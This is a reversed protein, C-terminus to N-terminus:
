CASTSRSRTLLETPTTRGFSASARKFAWSPSVTTSVSVVSPPKRRVAVFGPKASFIATASFSLRRYRLASRSSALHLRRDPQLSLVAQGNVLHHERLVATQRSHAIFAHQRRCKGPRLVTKGIPGRRRQRNKSCAVGGPDHQIVREEVAVLARSEHDAHREELQVAHDEGRGLFGDHLM